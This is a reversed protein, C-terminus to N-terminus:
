DWRSLAEDSMRIILTYWLPMRSFKVQFSVMDLGNKKYTDIGNSRHDVNFFFEFALMQQSIGVSLSEVQERIYELFTDSEWREVQKIIITSIGSMLM